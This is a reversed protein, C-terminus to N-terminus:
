DESESDTDDLLRAMLKRLARREKARKERRADKKNAEAEPEAEPEPEPEAEAEPEPENSPEPAALALTPVLLKWVITLGEGDFVARSLRCSVEDLSDPWCGDALLTAVREGNKRVNIVPVAADEIVDESSDKFWRQWEEKLADIFLEQMTLLLDATDQPVVVRIRHFESGVPVCRLGGEARAIMVPALGQVDILVASEAGRRVKLTIKQSAM